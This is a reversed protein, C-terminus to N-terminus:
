KKRTAKFPFSMGGASMDGVMEDGNMVADFLVSTGSYYLEGNVKKTEPNWTFKEIPLENGGANLKVAYANNQNVINLVGAFDGEPTGTITYDWDGAPTVAVEATKSVKPAACSVIALAFLVFVLQKMIFNTKTTLYNLNM